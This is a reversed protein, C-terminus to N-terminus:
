GQKAKLYGSDIISPALERVRKYLLNKGKETVRTTYKDKLEGNSGEYRSRTFDLHGADVRDQYPVNNRTVWGHQRMFEYLRKEGTGISKAAEAVSMSGTHHTITDLYELDPKSEEIKVLLAAEAKKSELLSELADIYTTPLAPGRQNELELWRDVIRATHLPSLQAVLTICDRKGKEGKFVYITTPKTATSIEEMPPLEIVMQGALRTIARKVNDHRFREDIGAEENFQNLYDTVQKSTMTMNRQTAISLLGNSM